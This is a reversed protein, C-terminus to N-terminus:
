SNQGVLLGSVQVALPTKCWVSVGVIEHTLMVLSVVTLYYPPLYQGVTFHCTDVAMSTEFASVSALGFAFWFLWVLGVALKFTRGSFVIEMRCPHFVCMYTQICVFMIFSLTVGGSMTSLTYILYCFSVNFSGFLRLIMMLIWVVGLVADSLAICLFMAFTANHYKKNKRIVALILLNGALAVIMATLKVSPLWTIAM